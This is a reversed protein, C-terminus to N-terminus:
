GSKVAAGSEGARGAVTVQGSKWAVRDHMGWHGWFEQPVQGPVDYRLYLYGAESDQQGANVEARSLAAQKLAKFHEDAALLTQMAKLLEQDSTSATGDSGDKNIVRIATDSM